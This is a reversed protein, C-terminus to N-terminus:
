RSPSTTPASHMNAQYQSASRQSSWCMTGGFTIVSVEVRQAALPDSIVETQYARLGENLLDIRSVGGTVVRYTQGDVQTTKGTDEGTNSVIAGMSGSTDLLLVCPCRPEPNTALAVDGFPVQDAM